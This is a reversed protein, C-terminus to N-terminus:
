EWQKPDKCWNESRMIELLVMREAVMEYDEESKPRLAQLRREIEGTGRTTTETSKEEVTKRIRSLQKKWVISYTSQLRWM